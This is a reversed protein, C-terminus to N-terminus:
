LILQEFEDINSLQGHHLDYEDSKDLRFINKDLDNKLHQFFNKEFM